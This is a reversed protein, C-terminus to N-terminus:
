RPVGDAAMRAVPEPLGHGQEDRDCRQVGACAPRDVNLVPQPGPVGLRVPLSIRRQAPAM